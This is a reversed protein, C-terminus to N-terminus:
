LQPTITCTGTSELWERVKEVDAESGIKEEAMLGLRKALKCYSYIRKSGTEARIWCIKTFRSQNAHAYELATETKGVGGMGHLICWTLNNTKSYVDSWLFDHIAQLEIGRRVFQVNRQPLGVIQILIPSPLMPPALPVASKGIRM